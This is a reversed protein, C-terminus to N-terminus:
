VSKHRVPVAGQLLERVCAAFTSGAVRWNLRVQYERYAAAAMGAYRDNDLSVSAIYEAIEVCSANPAFLRGNREDQIITSVGGVRNGICPVGYRNAEAFVLGYCEAAPLLILWHSSLFTKAIKQRGEETRKGIFGHVVVRRRLAHPIEPACGVIHLEVLARLRLLEQLVELVKAGGKREFDVGVFLLRVREKGRGAIAAKVDAEKLNEDDDVNAGFPIVKVKRPEVAYHEMASKAAWESSFACLAARRYAARELKEGDEFYEKTRNMYGSYTTVLSDFTADAWIAIPVDTELFAVPISGPSVIVDYRKGKLQDMVAQAYFKAVKHDREASFQGLNGRLLRNYFIRKARLWHRRSRSYQPLPGMCDVDYDQRKIARLIYSGLGSWNLVDAPDYTTVYAVRM